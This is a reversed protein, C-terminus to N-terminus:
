SYPGAYNILLGHGTLYVYSFLVPAGPIVPMIIKGGANGNVLVPTGENLITVTGTQAGDRVIAILGTSGQFSNKVNLAIDVTGDVMEVLFNAVPREEVDLIITGGPGNLVTFSPDYFPTVPGGGGGSGSVPSITIPM